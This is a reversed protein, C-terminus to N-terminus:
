KCCGREKEPPRVVNVRAAEGAGSSNGGGTGKRQNIVDRALQLFASEVNDLSLASAEFFKCDNEAALSEGEKRQVARQM